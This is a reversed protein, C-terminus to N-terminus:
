NCHGGLILIKIGNITYTAGIAQCIFDLKQYLSEETIDGTFTCYNINEEKNDIEIGYVRELKELVEVIPTESFIFEEKQEAANDTLVPIPHEVLTVILDENDTHYVLRQNPILSVKKSGSLLRTYFMEESQNKSVRVKGTVVAVESKQVNNRTKVTFSTGVVETILDSSYVFFPRASNKSVDFFAEGDIYVERKGTSFTKPHILQTHPQLVVNSGDELNVMLPFESDNIRVVRDKANSLFSPMNTQHIMGYYAASMLVGICSAAVALKIWLPRVSTKEHTKKESFVGIKETISNWLKEDIASLEAGQIERLDDDDLIDYWQEVIRREEITCSGELYRKLLNHFTERSM